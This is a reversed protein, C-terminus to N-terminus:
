HGLITNIEKEAEAIADEASVQGTIVNQVMNQIRDSIEAM